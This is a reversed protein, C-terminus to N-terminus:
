LTYIDLFSISRNFVSDRERERERNLYEIIIINECNNKGILITTSQMLKTWMTSISKRFTIRVRSQKQYVAAVFRLNFRIETINKASKILRSSDDWICEYHKECMDACKWRLWVNAEHVTSHQTRLSTQTSGRASTRGRARERGEM